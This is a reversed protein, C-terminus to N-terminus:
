KEKQYDALAKRGVKSLDIELYENRVHDHFSKLARSLPMAANGVNISAKEQDSSTPIDGPMRFFAEKGNPSEDMMGSYQVPDLWARYLNEIRQYLQRDYLHFGHSTVVREFGELFTVGILTIRSYGLRDIFEDLVDSNLWYIVKKLQVLDRARKIEKKSKSKKKRPGQVKNPSRIAKGSPPLAEIICRAYAAAIVAAYNHWLDGKTPNCYDCTGRVVLYGKALNWTADAIGSGEMEVARVGFQDRLADRKKPNKLLKNASAIPGHFVRPHGRRREPDKPHVTPVAPPVEDQLTDTSSSPRRWKKGLNAMTKRVYNEWPRKNRMQKSTLWRDADILAAAPPRPAHRHETFTSEEKDFDYQVVGKRDSVVIDGLRVHVDAKKPNPVAGAIGVMIIHEVNPCHQSMQTARIAASNNGMESLLGLAVVRDIGARTRLKAVAYKRGGGEGPVDIEEEAGLAESVAAFEEPLATIIGIEASELAM